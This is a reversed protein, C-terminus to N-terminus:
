ALADPPVIAGHSRLLSRLDDLPVDATDVGRASALAAVAGAAQGTAFCTAMVRYASNALRDGAICRGAVVLCQSGEPLMAGLPITPFIGPPIIRFDLGQPLHLDIPYFSYCVADDWMKGSIYDDLSITARGHITVTERIGTEMATSAICLKDLGPQTRLFRFLRLLVRRGETEAHTRGESTTGDVNLVHIANGGRNRLLPEIKGQSWGVDAACLRGAAVEADFASQIVAYDLDDPEYGTFAMVLTAPQMTEPKVVPFGALSVLNADASCDVLVDATIERLGTKTCVTVTWGDSERHVAAPMAHLLLDVGADVIADSAVLSFVAGNVKPYTAGSSGPKFESPHVEGCIERTRCFLEWGIGAIVQKEYAHFSSVCIVGAATMTGGLIGNREILLTRAGAR